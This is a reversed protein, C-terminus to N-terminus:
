QELHFIQLLLYHRALLLRQSMSYVDGSDEIIKMMESVHNTDIFINMDPNLMYGKDTTVILHQEDGDVLRCNKWKTSFKYM